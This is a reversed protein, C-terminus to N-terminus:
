NPNFWIFFIIVVVAILVWSYISTFHYTLSCKKIEKFEAPFLSDKDIYFGVNYCGLVEEIKIIIERNKNFGIEIARLFWFTFVGILIILISLSNKICISLLERNFLLWPVAVIIIGLIWLTFRLSRERMNHSAKYRENLLNLLADFKQTNTFEM